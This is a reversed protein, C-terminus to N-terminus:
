FILRLKVEGDPNKTALANMWALCLGCSRYVGGYATQEEREAIPFTSYIYRIDDRAQRRLSPLVCCGAQRAFAPAPRRGLYPSKVKGAKDVYGMDRSFPAM